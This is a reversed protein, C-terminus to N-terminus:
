KYENILKKLEHQAAKDKSVVWKRDTQIFENPNTGMMVINVFVLQKM